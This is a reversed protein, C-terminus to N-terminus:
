PTASWPGGGGFRTGFFDGPKWRPRETTNAIELGVYIHALTYKRAAEHNLALKLDDSPRHYHNKRFRALEEAGNVKPDVATLGPNLKIAPIGTRVFSFQDSRVFLVQEPNPDPSLTFGQAAAVREAVAQLTSHEAGLPILDAMDYILVPMDINVNAAISRAPVTPNNAFYSSGRLGKEEGTVAVFLMSRRPPAPLSALARASELMVAVGTANDFAGNHIKDDGAAHENIGVHDLHASYVVYQDRLEPDSGPLVAVVNSSELRQQQFARRVSLRVPLDFSNHEAAESKRIVEDFGQPGSAFLKTAGEMSLAAIARLKAFGDYTQGTDDIWAMNRASAHTRLRKWDFRKEETPTRIGIYGVAGRDAARQRKTVRSSHFARQTSPFNAPGGALAAVIKGSVDIGEYDDYGLEPAHVGFGAFVVPASFSDEAASFGARMVFDEFYILPVEGRRGQIVFRASGPVLVSAMMPVKQFFRGDDGLPELGMLQFQAAVYAAALDYGRTGAERGELLDDALFAVHAQIHGVDVAMEPTKGTACGYAALCFAVPPIFANRM